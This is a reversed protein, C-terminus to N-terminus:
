DAFQEAFFGHMMRYGRKAAKADYMCGPSNATELAFCHVAGSFNVFQWDAGARNMEEGFPLIQNKTSEDDAGNLVLIPTRISDPTAPQASQLGGHLSVVGDLEVGSRALELVSSGGFCFGFAGTRTTDLPAKDAQAHLTDLAAQMRARMTLPNPLLTQIQVLAEKSDAPRVGKGYMDVVLIVYDTGAQQRAKDLSAPTIGYWDPVMLLGPRKETISDDYVLAGSFVTEDVSWEVPLTKMEAFAPLTFLALALTALYPRM